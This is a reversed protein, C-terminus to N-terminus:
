KFKAVYNSNLELSSSCGIQSMCCRFEDKLIDISKVAGKEGGTALGYLVSRGLLVSEAGLAKAKAIDRGRRVGGDIFLPINRDERELASLIDIPHAATDLQRGGHNSLVVGDMGYDICMKVDAPSLVGKIIIKKPWIDRLWALDDWSFSADMSRSLLAAKAEPTQAEDSEMNGLRPMGHRLYDLTWAPHLAGDIVTKLRYDFPMKFGNRIDRERKGNVVVDTTIVLCEYGAALARGALSKALTREIVYLQFWLEGGAQVAVKEISDSSATSLIFPIGTKEAARALAIDGNPWFLSNLGTPAIIGPFSAEKGLVSVRTEINKIDTLRRPVFKWANYSTVNDDITVEDEAGGELYDFVVRPLRRKASLRIEKINMADAKQLM